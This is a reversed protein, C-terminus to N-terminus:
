QHQLRCVTKGDAVRRGIGRAIQLYCWLVQFGEQSIPGVVHIRLVPLITDAPQANCEDAPPKGMVIPQAKAGPAMQIEAFGDVQLPVVVSVGFAQNARHLNDGALPARFLGQPFALRSEGAHELAADDGGGQVIRAASYSRHVLGETVPQSM